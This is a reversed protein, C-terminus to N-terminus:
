VNAVALDDFADLEAIVFDHAINDLQRRAIAFFAGVFEHEIVDRSAGVIAADIATPNRSNGFDQIDWKTNGATDAADCVGLLNEAFACFFNGDVRGCQGIWFEDVPEAQAEAGLADNDTDIAL